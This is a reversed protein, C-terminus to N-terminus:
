KLLQTHIYLRRSTKICGQFFFNLQIPLEKQSLKQHCVNNVTKMPCMTLVRERARDLFNQSEHFHSDGGNIHHM